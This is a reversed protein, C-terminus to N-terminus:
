KPCAQLKTLTATACAAVAPHTHRLQVARLAEVAGAALLAPATKRAGAPEAAAHGVMMLMLTTAGMASEMSSAPHGVAKVALPAVLVLCRHTVLRCAPAASRFVSMLLVCCLGVAMADDGHLRMMAITAEVGREAAFRQLVDEYLPTGLCKHMLEKITGTTRVACAVDDGHMAAAKTVVEVAGAAVLEAVNDKDIMHALTGCGQFAATPYDRAYRRVVALAMLHAGRGRSQELGAPNLTLKGVAGCASSAAAFSGEHKRWAAFVAPIAGASVLADAGAPDIALQRVAECLGYVAEQVAVHRTLAGLVAPAAGEAILLQALLPKEAMKWIAFSCETVASADAAHHELAELVVKGASAPPLSAEQSWSAVIISLVRTCMLVNDSQERILDLLSLVAGDDVAPILKFCEKLSLIDQLALAADLLEPATTSAGRSLLLSLADHFKRTVPSATDEASSSM